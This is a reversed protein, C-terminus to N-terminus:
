LGRLIHEVRCQHNGGTKATSMKAKTKDSLTKGKNIGSLKAKTGESVISGLRSGATPLLNYSNPEDASFILIFNNM